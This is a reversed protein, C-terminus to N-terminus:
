VKRRREKWVRRGIILVSVGTCVFGMRLGPTFYNFEIEHYGAELPIAMFMYNGRLIEVPEGDVKASWGKSYPISLCLIKNKSLNVTGTIQNIDMKINELPEERLNEIQEPYKDMSLAFIEIDELKFKGAKPFTITCTTREKESYTILM